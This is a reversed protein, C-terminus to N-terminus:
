PAYPRLTATMQRNTATNTVVAAGDSSAWQTVFTVTTGAPILVTAFNVLVFPFSTGNGVNTARRSTADVPTGDQAFRVACGTGPDVVAAISFSGNFQLKCEWMPWTAPPTVDLTMEALTSFSSSATTPDSTTAATIQTPPFLSTDLGQVDVASHKHVAIFDPHGVNPM